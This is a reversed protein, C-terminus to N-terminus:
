RQFGVLLDRPVTVLKIGSVYIDSSSFLLSLTHRLPSVFFAANGRGRESVPWRLSGEMPWASVPRGRQGLIGAGNKGKM